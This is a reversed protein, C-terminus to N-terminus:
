LTVKLDYGLLILLSSQLRAPTQYLPKSFIAQLPKHDSEVTIQRGPVYQHFTTCGYSIALYEKEIQDYNQQSKTLARSRYVM